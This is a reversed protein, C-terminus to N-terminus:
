ISTKNIAYKDPKKTTQLPPVLVVLSITEYCLMQRRKLLAHRPRQELVRLLLDHVLDHTEKKLGSGTESEADPEVRPAVPFVITGM